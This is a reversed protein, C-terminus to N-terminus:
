NDHTAGTPRTEELMHLDSDLVECWVVGPSEVKAFQHWYGNGSFNKGKYILRDPQYKWNYKGGIKMFFPLGTFPCVDPCWPEQAQPQQSQKAYNACRQYAMAVDNQIAKAIVGTEYGRGSLFFNAKDEDTKMDCFLPGAIPQQAQPPAYKVAAAQWAGWAHLSAVTPHGNHDELEGDWWAEFDARLKQNESM